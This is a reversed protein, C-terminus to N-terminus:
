NRMQLHPTHKTDKTLKNTLAWLHQHPLLNPLQCHQPFLETSGSTCYARTKIIYYYDCRYHDKSPGLYWANVGRSAWLGQTNGDRYIIANCGLPALPYRNWDHPGNLIEYALKTPDIHSAQMLNLTDQIQPTLCDWLQLPFDSDTTALVAIYADKFTQIACKAVNVHHNHPEVLQLKCDNRTLCTKIHKTGQNDMINLKPKFGKSVLMEFEKKKYANFISIDNLGAIPTVLIFNSKYHYLIFFCVRGDYAMFPFSGTLDHYVIGRNKDAFARYCFINAVSKNDDSGILNPGTMAGYALGPYIHVEKFLLLM